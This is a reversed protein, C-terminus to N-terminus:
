YTIQKWQATIYLIPLSVAVCELEVPDRSAPYLYSKQEALNGHVSLFAVDAPRLTKQISTSLPDIDGNPCVASVFLTRQEPVQPSAVKAAHFGRLGLDIYCSVWEYNEEAQERFSIIPIGPKSVAHYCTVGYNKSLRAFTRRGLSRCIVWGTSNSATTLIKDKFLNLLLSPQPQKTHPTREWTTHTRSILDSSADDHAHQRELPVIQPIPWNSRRACCAGRRWVPWLARRGGCECILM